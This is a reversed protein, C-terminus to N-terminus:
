TKGNSEEEFSPHSCEPRARAALAAVNEMARLFSEVTEVFIKREAPTPLAEDLAADNWQVTATIIPNLFSLERM